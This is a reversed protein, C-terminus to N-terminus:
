PVPPAGPVYFSRHGRPAPTDVGRVDVRHLLTCGGKPKESDSALLGQEALLGGTGWRIVHGAAQQSPLM